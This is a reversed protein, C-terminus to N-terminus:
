GPESSRLRPYIIAVAILIIGIVILGINLAALPSTVDTFLQRAPEQLPEVTIGLDWESRGIISRGVLIGAYEIIGFVLFTIGLYLSAGKVERYIAIIALILVVILAILGWYGSIFWGIYQRADELEPTNEVESLADHIEDRAETLAEEAETLANSVEESLEPDFLEEGFDITPPIEDMAESLFDDM